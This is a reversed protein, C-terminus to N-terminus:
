DLNPYNLKKQSTCIIYKPEYLSLLKIFDENSINADILCVPFKNNILSTYSIISGLKNECILFVLNNQKLLKKFLKTYKLLDSYFIEYNKEKIAINDKYKKFSRLFM